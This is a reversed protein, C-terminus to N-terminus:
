KAEEPVSFKNEFDQPGAPWAERLLGFLRRAHGGYEASFPEFVHGTADAISVNGLAVGDTKVSKRLIGVAKDWVHPTVLLYNALCHLAIELQEEDNFDQVTTGTRRRTQGPESYTKEVLRGVAIEAEVEDAIWALPTARLAELLAVVDHNM